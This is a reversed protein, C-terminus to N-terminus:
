SNDRFNSFVFSANSDIQMKFSQDNAPDAYIPRYFLKEKM